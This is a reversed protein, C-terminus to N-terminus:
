RTSSALSRAAVDFSPILDAGLKHQVHVVTAPM